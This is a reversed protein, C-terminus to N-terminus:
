NSYREFIENAECLKKDLITGQRRPPGIKILYTRIGNFEKFLLDLTNEM